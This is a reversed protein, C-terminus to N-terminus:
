RPMWWRSSLSVDPTSTNERTRLPVLREGFLELVPARLLLVDRADHHAPPSPGPCAGAAEQRLVLAPGHRDEGPLRRALPLLRDRAVAHELSVAIAREDLERRLGPARVLEAHLERGRARGDRAVREVAARRRRPQQEVGRLEREAVRRAPLAM